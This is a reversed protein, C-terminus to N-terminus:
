KGGLIERSRDMQRQARDLYGRAREDGPDIDLIRRWQSVASELQGAAFSEMGRTLYEKKLHEAVQRFTPRAAWVLELYRVAEDSRGARLAAVGREYLDEAEKDSLTPRAAVPAATAPGSM